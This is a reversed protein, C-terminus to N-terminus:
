NFMLCRRFVADGSAREACVQVWSRALIDRFYARTVSLHRKPVTAICSTSQPVERDLLLLSHGSVDHQVWLMESFTRLPPLSLSVESGLRGSVGLSSVGEISSWTKEYATTCRECIGLSRRCTHSTLMLVTNSPRSPRSKSVWLSDLSGGKDSQREGTATAADFGEPSIM